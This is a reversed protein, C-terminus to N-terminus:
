NRNCKRITPKLLSWLSIVIVNAFPRDIRGCCSKALVRTGVNVMKVETGGMFGVLLM